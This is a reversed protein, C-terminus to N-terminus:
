EYSLGHDSRAFYLSASPRYRQQLSMQVERGKQEFSERIDTSRARTREEIRERHEAYRPEDMYMLVVDNSVQSSDLPTGVSHIDMPNAHREPDDASVPRWGHLRYHRQRNPRISGWFYIRGPQANPINLHAAVGKHCGYVEEGTVEDIVNGRHSLPKVFDCQKGGQM